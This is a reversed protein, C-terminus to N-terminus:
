IAAAADKVVTVQEIENPNLRVFTSSNSVLGDIVILPSGFGRIDYLTNYAGPEGTRQTVRLGPLVGALGTVVNSTPIAKLEKSTASVFSGTLSIKKATGYGVAVVEEIGITEEELTVNITTKGAVAVEQTRMGVFSFVLTAGPPVNTLSYAGDANTILGQSTGKVLVTVGPLPQNSSDTVKGSVSNQQQQEYFETSSESTGKEPKILILNDQRVDFAIAQGKFLEPLIEEVTKDTINLTVIQEVDVQERQYFFRFDSSKEIERLVEQIRQNKLEFSFKTTQSYVTASVQLFCVVTFLITLKMILLLKRKKGLYRSIDTEIKKMFKCYNIHNIFPHQCCRKLVNKGATTSLM